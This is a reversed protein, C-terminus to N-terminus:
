EIELIRHNLVVGDMPCPLLEESLLPQLLLGHDVAFRFQHGYGPM